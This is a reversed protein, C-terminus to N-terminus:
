KKTARKGRKSRKPIDPKHTIRPAEKTYDVRELSPIRFSFSTAGGMNNIIFDGRNIIDM